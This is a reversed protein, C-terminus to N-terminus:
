GARWIMYDIIAILGLFIVVGAARQLESLKPDIGTLGVVVIVIINVAIMGILTRRDLSM